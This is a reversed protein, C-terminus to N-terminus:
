LQYEEAFYSEKTKHLKSVRVGLRNAIEIIEKDHSCQLGLIIRNTKLGSSAVPLGCGKGEEVPLVIRYEREHEWSKHKICTNKILLKISIKDDISLSGDPGKDIASKLLRAVTGTVDLPASEYLVERITCRNIVDYEVCFGKAWNAYYAWMPATCCDTASFCCVLGQGSITTLTKNVAAIMADDYLQYVPIGGYLNETEGSLFILYKKGVEMVNVFGREMSEPEASLSIKWHDSYVYIEEEKIDKGSYIKEIKVRQRSTYFVNELEGVTKVQMVIPASPLIEQLEECATIAIQEPLLAVQLKNMYNEEATINTYSRRKVIGLVMCALIVCITVICVIRKRM